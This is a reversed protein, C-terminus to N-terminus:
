KESSGINLDTPRIPGGIQIDAPRPGGEGTPTVVTGDPDGFGPRQHGPRQQQKHDQVWKEFEETTMSNPNPMGGSVEEAEELNLEKKEAM